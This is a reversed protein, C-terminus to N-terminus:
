QGRTCCPNNIGEEEAKQFLKPLISIIEERFTQCSDGTFGGPELSKETPLNKLVQEIEETTIPRSPNETEEHNLKSLNQTELFRNDLRRTYLKESCEKM